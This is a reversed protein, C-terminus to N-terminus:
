RSGCPIEAESLRCVVARFKGNPGRPICDVPEMKICLNGMYDQLRVKIQSETVSNFGSAPVYRIRVTDITEQIIQLERVPLSGKLVPDLRGVRRGDATYLVDDARGELSQILPLSRGCACRTELPALAGRDRVRYRILPMDSNILGTCILEGARGAPLPRGGEFVEIVGVSPWLHLRGHECEGGAAAMEAMGYTERVPCGFAASIADRQYGYVPEANTIAVRLGPPPTDQALMEQAMAYLASTYGWIYTIGFRKLAEVYYKIWRPSLHYSSLYLQRLGSNWVWFPPRNQGVPAILRGGLIAWRDNRSVGYWRRSRAEVLAYWAVLTRRSQHLQVPTGTTGSTHVQL